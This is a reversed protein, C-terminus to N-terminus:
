KPVRGAPHSAIWTGLVPISQRTLLDAEELRELIRLGPAHTRLLRGASELLPLATELLTLAKNAADRDQVASPQGPLSARLQAELDGPM